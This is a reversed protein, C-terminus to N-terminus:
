RFIFLLYIKLLSLGLPCSCFNLTFGVPMTQTEEPIEMEVSCVRCLVQAKM